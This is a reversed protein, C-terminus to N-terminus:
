CDDDVVAFESRLSELAKRIRYRMVRIAGPNKGTRGAIQEDSLEEIWTMQFLEWQEATLRQRIADLMGRLVEGELVASAPNEERGCQGDLRQFFDTEGTAIPQRGSKRKYDYIVRNAITRLWARFKKTPDYTFGPLVSVCRLLTEQVVDSAAADALGGRRAIAYLYPGYIEVFLRWASSNQGDRLKKLLTPSTVADTM